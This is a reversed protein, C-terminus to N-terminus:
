AQAIVAGGERASCALAAQVSEPLSPRLRELDFLREPQYSAGRAVHWIAKTLKRMLAVVAPLKHDPRYSSRRQYWARAIPESMIARMARLFLYKRVRGPGRKTLHLGGKQTGSSREKLNLGCAKEFARASHYQSPHGVMAIIVAVTTPGLM